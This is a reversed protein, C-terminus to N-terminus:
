FKSWESNVPLAIVNRDNALALATELRQEYTEIIQESGTVTQVWRSHEGYLMVGERMMSAGALASLQLEIDAYWDKFTGEIVDADDIVSFVNHNSRNDRALVGMNTAEQGEWVGQDDKSVDFGAIVGDERRRRVAERVALDCAASVVRQALWFANNANVKRLAVGTCLQKFLQDPDLNKNAFQLLRERAAEKESLAPREMNELGAAALLSSRAIEDIRASNASNDLSELAAMTIEGHSLFSDATTYDKKDYAVANM